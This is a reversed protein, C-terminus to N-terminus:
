WQSSHTSGRTLGCRWWLAFNIRLRKRWKFGSGRSLTRVGETKWRRTELTAAVHDEHFSWIVSKSNASPPDLKHSWSLNGAASMHSTTSSNDEASDHFQNRPARSKLPQKWPVIITRFHLGSRHFHHPRSTHFDLRAVYGNTRMKNWIKQVEDFTETHSEVAEDEDFGCCLLLLVSEIAQVDHEMRFVREVPTSASRSRETHKVKSRCCACRHTLATAHTFLRRKCHFCMDFEKKAQCPVM